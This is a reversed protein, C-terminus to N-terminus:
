TIRSVARSWWGPNDRYWRVTRALGDELEVRPAYGLESAVKDTALSYRQDHGLRDAVQEVRDWDAGCDRLLLASLAIVGLFVENWSM